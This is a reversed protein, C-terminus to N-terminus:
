GLPPLLSQLAAASPFPQWPVTYRWHWFAYARHLTAVARHAAHFAARDPQDGALALVYATWLGLDGTSWTRAHVALWVAAQVLERAEHWVHRPPHDQWAVCHLSDAVWADLFGDGDTVQM